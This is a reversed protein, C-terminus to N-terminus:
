VSYQTQRNHQKNLWQDFSFLEWPFVCLKDNIQFQINKECKVSKKHM